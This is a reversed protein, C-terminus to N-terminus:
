RLDAPNTGDRCWAGTCEYDHVYAKLDRYWDHYGFADMEEIAEACSWGDVEQRYIACMTGTRDRGYKCHVYVPQNAPDTVIDLFQKVQAETPADCAIHAHIPIEVLRLGAAAAAARDVGDTRLDVVTKFGQAKLAAMGDSGPASGRWIGEDLKAVNAMPLADPLREAFTKGTSGRTPSSAPDYSACAGLLLGSLILRRLSM